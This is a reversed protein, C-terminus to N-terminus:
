FRLVLGASANGQLLTPSSVRAKCGNSGCFLSSNTDMLTVFGRTEVRFALFDTLFFSGGFGLGISFKTENSVEDPDFYSVGAGGSVFSEWRHGHRWRETATLHIYRVDLAIESGSDDLPLSTTQQSIYAGVATNKGTDIDLALAYAPEDNLNYNKLVVAEENEQIVDFEGGFQYGSLLVLDTAYSSSSIIVSFLFILNWKM